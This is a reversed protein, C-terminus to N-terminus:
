PMDDSAVIQDLIRDEDREPEEERDPQQDGSYILDPHIIYSHSVDPVAVAVIGGGLSQVVIPAGVAAAAALTAEATARPVQGEVPPLGAMETGPAEDRRVDNRNDIYNDMRQRQCNMCCIVVVFFVWFTIITDRISHSEGGGKSVSETGTSSSSDNLFSQAMAESPFTLLLFLIPWKSRAWSPLQASMQSALAKKQRSSFTPSHRTRSIQPSQDSYGKGGARADFVCIQTFILLGVITRCFFNNSKGM